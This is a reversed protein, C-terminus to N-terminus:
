LWHLNTKKSSNETKNQELTKIKRTQNQPLAMFHRKLYIKGAAAPLVLKLSDSNPQLFLIPQTCFSIRHFRTRCCTIINQQGDDADV